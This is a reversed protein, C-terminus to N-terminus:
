RRQMDIKKMKVDERNRKHKCIQKEGRQTEVDIMKDYTTKTHKNKEDKCIQTQTGM